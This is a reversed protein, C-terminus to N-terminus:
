RAEQRGHKEQRQRHRTRRHNNSGDGVRKVQFAPAWSDQDAKRSEAGLLDVPVIFAIEQDANLRDLLLRVGHKDVFFSLSPM